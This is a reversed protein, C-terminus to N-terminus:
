TKCSAPSVGESILFQEFTMPREGMMKAERVLQQYKFRLQACRMRDTVQPRGDAQNRVVYEVYDLPM